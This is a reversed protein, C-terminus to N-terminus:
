IKGIKWPNGRDFCGEEMDIDLKGPIDILEFVLNDTVIIFHKQTDKHLFIISDPEMDRLLNSDKVEYIVEEFDNLAYKKVEEQNLFFSYNILSRDFVRYYIDSSEIRLRYNKGQLYITAIDYDILHGFYFVAKYKDKPIVIDEVPKWHEMETILGGRLKAIGDYRVDDFNVKYYGEVHHIVAVLRIFTKM